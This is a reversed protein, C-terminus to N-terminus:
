VGGAGGVHRVVAFYVLHLQITPNEPLEPTAALLQLFEHGHVFDVAPVFIFNVNPLNRVPSNLLKGKVRRLLNLGRAAAIAPVPRQGSAYRSSNSYSHM